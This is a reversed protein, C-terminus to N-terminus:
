LGLLRNIILYFKILVYYVPVEKRIGLCSTYIWVHATVFFLKVQHALLYM